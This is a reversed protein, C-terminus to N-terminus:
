YSAYGGVTIFAAWVNPGHAVNQPRRLMELQAERLARATSLKDRTRRRHFNKMLEGTPESDVEWLSAVILPVDAVIFARALGVMGEGRYNHGLWTQCASLVVLKTRTLRMRLVEGARLVGDAITSAGDNEKALLIGSYEPRETNVLGHSALHIVEARRAERRLASEHAKGALLLRRPFYFEAVQAAEDATAPLDKLQPFSEQDFFPNGLSLCGEAAFRSKGKATQTCALFVAASPAYVITYREILYRRSFPEILAAFPLYNLIEDPVICLEKGSDIAGEVPGILINYLNQSLQRAEHSEANAPLTLRDLYATIKSNLDGLRIPIAVSHFSERSVVWIYLMDSLLAYQLIQASPPMQRRVESLPLPDALSRIPLEDVPAHSDYGSRGKLLDL